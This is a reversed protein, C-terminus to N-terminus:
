HEVCEELSYKEGIIEIMLVEKLSFQVSNYPYTNNVEKSVM